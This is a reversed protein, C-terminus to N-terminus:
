LSKGEDRSLYALTNKLPLLKPIHAFGSHIM